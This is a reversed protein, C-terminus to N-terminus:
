DGTEKVPRGALRCVVSRQLARGVMDQFRPSGLAREQAVYIVIREREDPQISARLWESYANARAEPTPGLLTYCPHPTLMPNHELGLYVRVSSWRYEEPFAVMAARVPNLEIYRHVMLLYGDSDVLCSKFRGELLTGSRVHRKNFYQVYNQGCQRMAPALGEVTSPTILLHVHNGMLVFAHIAVAQKRCANRLLRLYHRRDEDDIFLAARNVGRQIVHLPIGPLVLRASRPM